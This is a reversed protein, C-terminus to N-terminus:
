LTSAGCVVDSSMMSTRCANKISVAAPTACGRLWREVVIPRADLCRDVPDNLFLIAGLGAALVVGALTLAPVLRRRAVRM